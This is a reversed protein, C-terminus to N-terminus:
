GSPVSRNNMVLMIKEKQVDTLEKLYKSNVFGKEIINRLITFKIPEGLRDEVM